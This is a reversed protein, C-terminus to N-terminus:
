CSSYDIDYENTCLPNITSCFSVLFFKFLLNELLDIQSNQFESEMRLIDNSLGGMNSSLTQMSKYQLAAHFLYFVFTQSVSINIRISLLTSPLCLISSMIIANGNLM